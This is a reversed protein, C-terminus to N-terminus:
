RDDENVTGTRCRREYGGTFGAGGGKKVGSYQWGLVMSVAYAGTNGGTNFIKGKVWRMKLNYVAEDSPAFLYDSFRMCVVRILEEPFPHLYDWTRLGSEVHAVNLGIRKSMLLGILTSLTDGHILAVGGTGKFIKARIYKPRLVIISLLSFFWTLVGFLSTVDRECSSLTWSSRIGFRSALKRVTAAHQGLNILNYPISRSELGKMVPAMKIFQAKTGIIIHITKAVPGYRYGIILM